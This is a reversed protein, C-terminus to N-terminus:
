SCRRNMLSSGLSDGILFGFMAGFARDQVSNKTVTPCRHYSLLQNMAAKPMNQLSILKKSSYIVSQSKM